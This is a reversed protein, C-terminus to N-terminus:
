AGDEGLLAAVAELALGQGWLQPLDDRIVSYGFPVLQLVTGASVRTLAGGPDVYALAGAAARRGAAAVDDLGPLLRAARLMAAGIGATASTELIGATEPQGDVLVDYVGHAPLLGALAGLQRVLREEVEAVTARDSPLQRAAELYEVAALAAWANARGWLSWITAGGYAGHAFLGSREQQLEGAHLVLQRGAEDLVSGDGSGAGYRALFAGAMYMTDAWVSGPWHEIVGGRGRTAGGEGLAWAVLPALRGRLSGDEDVALAALGPALDNVHEVRLQPSLRAEVWARVAPAGEAGDAEGAAAHFHAIGTLAIGEGWFWRDVVLLWTRDVLAAGLAALAPRGLAEGRLPVRPPLALAASSLDEAPM